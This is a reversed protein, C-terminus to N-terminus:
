LGWKKSIYSRISTFLEEHYYGIIISLFYFIAQPLHIYKDMLVMGGFVVIGVVCVVIIIKEITISIYDFHTSPPVNKRMEKYKKLLVLISAIAGLLLSVLYNVDSQFLTVVSALSATTAGSKFASATIIETKM